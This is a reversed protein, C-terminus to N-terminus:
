AAKERQLYALYDKADKIQMKPNAWEPHEAHVKTWHEVEDSARRLEDNWNM